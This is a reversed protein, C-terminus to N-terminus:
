ILLEIENRLINDFDNPGVFKEIFNSDQDIIITTPTLAADWHSSISHSIDDRVIIWSANNATRWNYLNSNSDAPDTTITIILLQSNLYSIYFL